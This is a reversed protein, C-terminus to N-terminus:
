RQIILKQKEVWENTKIEVMYIGNNLDGLNIKQQVQNLKESRVSEGILNYVNLTMDSNNTHDINLTVIDFAPNPYLNFLNNKVAQETVSNILDNFNLNDIYLVSNGHPIFQPPYGNANYSALLISGSDASAYSPFPINFSTWNAISDTSIFENGSVQTGNYYLLILIRMTDGNLPAYKYYGTLSTPHGIIPFSPMPGNNIVNSRNQLVVGFGEIGPLLSTNNEIRISYNGIFAPYHDTSRTVPYFPGGANSNPTLFGQPEMYSGVNNWQEFGNNPIQANAKIIMAFLVTLIITFKKM